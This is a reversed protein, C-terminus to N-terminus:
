GEFHSQVTLVNGNEITGLRAIRTKRVLSLGDVDILNSKLEADHAWCSRDKQFARFIAEM